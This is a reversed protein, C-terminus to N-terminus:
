IAVAKQVSENFIKTSFISYRQRCGLVSETAAASPIDQLRDSATRNDTGYLVMATLM